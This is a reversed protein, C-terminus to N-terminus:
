LAKGSNCDVAYLNGRMLETGEDTGIWLVDDEYAVNGHFQSAGDVSVNYQWDVDGTVANLAYLNGSCSGIYVREGVVAPSM